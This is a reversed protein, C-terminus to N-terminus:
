PERVRGFKGDLLGTLKDPTIVTVNLNGLLESYKELYRNTTIVIIKLNLKHYEKIKQSLEEAKQFVNHWFTCEVIIEGLIFDPFYFRDRCKM